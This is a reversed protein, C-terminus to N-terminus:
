WIDCNSLGSHSCPYISISVDSPLFFILNNLIWMSSSAPFSFWSSKPPPLRTSKFLAPTGKISITESGSKLLASSTSAYKLFNFDISSYISTESQLICSPENLASTLTDTWLGPVGNPVRVSIFFIFENLLM